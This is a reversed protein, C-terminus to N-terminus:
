ADGASKRRFALTMAPQFDRAGKVEVLVSMTGEDIIFSTMRWEAARAGHTRGTFVFRNEGVAEGMAESRSGDSSFGWLTYRENEADWGILTEEEITRGDALTMTQRVRLYRDRLTMEHTREARFRGLAPLEGEGEWVGGVLPALAQVPSTQASLRTAVVLQMVLVILLSLRCPM